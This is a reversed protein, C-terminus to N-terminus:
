PTTGSEPKGDEHWSGWPTADLEIAHTMMTQTTQHPQLAGLPDPHLSV